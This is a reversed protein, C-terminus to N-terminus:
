LVSWMMNPPEQSMVDQRTTLVRHQSTAATAGAGLAVGCRLHNSVAILKSAVSQGLLMSPAPYSESSTVGIMALM